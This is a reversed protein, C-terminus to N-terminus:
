LVEPSEVEAVARPVLPVQERQPAQAMASLTAVAELTEGSAVLRELTVALALVSLAGIAVIGLGGHALEAAFNLGQARAPSALLLLGYLGLRPLRSM